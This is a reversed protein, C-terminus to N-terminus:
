AITCLLIIWHGPVGITHHQLQTPLEKIRIDLIGLTLGEIHKQLKALTMVLDLDRLIVRGIPKQAPGAIDRPDGVPQILGIDTYIFFLNQKTESNIFLM